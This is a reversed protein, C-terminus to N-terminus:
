RWRREGGSALTQRPVGIDRDIGFEHPFRGIIGLQAKKLYRGGFLSEQDIRQRLLKIEFRKESKQAILAHHLDKVRRALVDFLKQCIARIM